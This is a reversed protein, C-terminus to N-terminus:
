EMCTGWRHNQPRFWWVGSTLAHGVERWPHRRRRGGKSPGGAEALHWSAITEMKVQGVGDEDGHVSASM